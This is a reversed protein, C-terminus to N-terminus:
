LRFTTPEFGVGAVLSNPRTDTALLGTLDGCITIDCPVGPTIRITEVMARLEAFARAMAAADAGGSLASRLRIARAALANRGAITFDVVPDDPPMAALARAAQEKERVASALVARVAADVAADDSALLAAMARAERREAEALQRSARGRERGADRAADRRTAAYQEAYLDCARPDNMLDAIRDFVRTEIQEVRYHKTVGCTGHSKAARCTVYRGSTVLRDGCVGCSLLGSLARTQKHARGDAEGIARRDLRSQVASWVDDTVIRLDPMAKRHWEDPPNVVSVRRGTEPNKRYRQRNWVFEGVYLTNRLVGTGRTRSGCLTNAAWKAGRSGAVGEENLAYAIRSAPVGAAFDDFIRRVVAAEGADIARCGTGAERYGYCLGGPIMGRSLQGAQGRKTKKGLEKLYLAAMTGVMGIKLEGIEGDSLTIIQVNSFQARKFLRATVEMDRSLRDLSEAVVVDILGSSVAATLGDFGAREGSAGSIAADQYVATEAWGEAAIRARCAAIQDACSHPSQMATSYRAYIAVRKM